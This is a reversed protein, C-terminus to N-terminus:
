RTETRIVFERAMTEGPPLTQLGLKDEFPRQEAHDPLGWCPEVCIFASGDSWLTLYPAQTYDLDVRRGGSPDVVTFQRDPVGALDLLYSGPLAAKEFPM